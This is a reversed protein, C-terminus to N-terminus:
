RRRGRDPPRLPPGRRHPRARFAEAALEPGGIGLDDTAKMERVAEPDFEREITTRRTLASELSRSYVVKEAAQWIEAFDRTYDSLTALSPDTEWPAVTEYMRRGYLHVGVPRELDNIFRHVEEDPRSWSFDGTEDEIYGDLSAAMLYTLKGM